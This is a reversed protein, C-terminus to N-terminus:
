IEERALAAGDGVVTAWDDPVIRDFAEALVQLPGILASQQWWPDRRAPTQGVLWVTVAALLLGRALGFGAGIARDVGSLPSKRVLASVIATIVAGVVLGAFFVLAYAAALRISPTDIWRELSPTLLPAFWLAAALSLIWSALGLMERTFGRWVGILISLALAAALIWDVWIM